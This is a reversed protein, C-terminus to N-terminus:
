YIFGSEIMILVDQMTDADSSLVKCSSIVFVLVHIDEYSKILEKLTNVGTYDFHIVSKLDLVIYKLKEEIFDVYDEQNSLSTRQVKFKVTLALQEAEKIQEPTGNQRKLNKRIRLYEQPCVGSLRCIEKRIHDVSVFTVNGVIRIIKTGVVESAKNEEINVFVYNTSNDNHKDNQFKVVGLLWIDPKMSQMFVHILTLVIGVLLGYKLDIIIVSLFTATWVGAETKSLKWIESVIKVQFLTSRLAIIIISSLVCRPLPEFFPGVWLLVVLLLLCSVISAIQTRGGALQQVASRGLSTSVPLCQTFSGMINALGFALLEQNTDIRYQSNAAFLMAMSMSVSYSVFMVYFSEEAVETLLSFPPLEFPPTGKPIHGIVRIGYQDFHLLISLCNGLLIVILKFPFEFKVRKRFWPAFLFSDVVLILITTSATALTYMNTHQINLFIHKYNSYFSFTGGTVEFKLGLLEKIQSTLVHVAAGTTFSTVLTGSLISCIVGLHLIYFVLHWIGVMFSVATGIEIPGHGFTANVEKVHTDIIQGSMLCVIAFTGVSVHRSTSFIFYIIVPYFAMYIGHIPPVHGLIAYAMGQPLHLLAVTIGAIIDSLINIKWKYKPIWKLAPLSSYICNLMKSAYKACTTSFINSRNDSLTTCQPGSDSNQLKLLIKPTRNGSEEGSPVPQSEHIDTM